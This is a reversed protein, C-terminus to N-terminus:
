IFRTKCALYSGLELVSMKLVLVRCFNRLVQPVRISRKSWNKPWVPKPRPIRKRGGRQCMCWGPLLLVVLHGQRCFKVALKRQICRSRAPMRPRPRLKPNDSKAIKRGNWASGYRGGGMKPSESSMGMTKKKLNRVTQFIRCFCTRGITPDIKEAVM